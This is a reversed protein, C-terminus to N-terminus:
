LGLHYRQKGGISIPEQSGFDNTLSFLGQAELITAEKAATDMRSIQYGALRQCRVQFM